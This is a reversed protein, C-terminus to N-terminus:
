SRRYRMRVTSELQRVAKEVNAVDGDFAGALLAPSGTRLRDTVGDLVATEGRALRYAFEGLSPAVGAHHLELLSRLLEFGDFARDFERDSTLERFHPRVVSRIHASLAGHPRAGRWKPLLEAVHPEVVRYPVLTRLDRSLVTHVLEDHRAAVAAVGIAYSVLLAPYPQRELVQALVSTWLGGRAVDDDHVAVATIALLESMAGDCRLLHEEVAAPIRRDPVNDLRQAPPVADLAAALATRVVDNVGSGSRIARRLDVLLPSSTETNVWDPVPGLPRRKPVRYIARLIRELQNSYDVSPDIGVWATHSLTAPVEARDLRVCILTLDREIARRASADIEERVWKSSATNASVVVIVADSNDIQEFVREVIRDGPLIEERDLWVRVGNDELAKAFAVVFRDQDLNSHSIFVSPPVASM